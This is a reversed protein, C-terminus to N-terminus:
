AGVHHAAGLRRALEGADELLDGGVGSLHAPLELDEAAVGGVGAVLRGAQARGGVGGAHREVLERLAQAAGGPDIRLHRARHGRGRLM